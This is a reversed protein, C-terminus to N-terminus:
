RKGGKNLEQIFEVLGDIEVEFDYNFYDLDVTEMRANTVFLDRRTMKGLDNYSWIRIQTDEGGRNKYIDTVVNPEIGIADSLQKLTSLEEKTPRAMICGVDAKNIVARSGAITAENRIEKSEDAKANVQTSTMVFINLEVALQKLADSVMLLIEDNRLNAGKFESLLSPSVFIYDFFVYEIDKLKVQERIVQKLLGITPGPMRVITLNDKFRELVQLSQRIIAKEKPTTKARKITSENIGSIYALIMKQVEDNSQETIIIMTKRGYGQQVWRGKQWDYKIPFAIQCADGVASRTKGLGSASSRVYLRGRLAGSVAINFIDGQLPLGIEPAEELSELLEVLGDTVTTIEATDRLMYDSKVKLFRMELDDLIDQASSDTYKDMIELERKTKPTEVYYNEVGIREKNLRNILNEKEFRKYVGDFSAAAAEQIDALLQNGDYEKYVSSATPSQELWKEIEHPALSDTATPALNEIAWFIYKYFPNNFDSSKISYKDTQLIYKPNKILSGLLQQETAPHAM